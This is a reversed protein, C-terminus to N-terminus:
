RAAAGWAQSQGAASRLQPVGWPNADQLPEPLLAQPVDQYAVPRLFRDIAATGVSTSSDNTTAPWPGGHQMAPTVAVGTPWGDFLVRGAHGTIWGILSRLPASAEGAGAHVTGTLNGEFLDDARAALEDEDDYEVVVSLPGFAEGLLADRQAALDDARVRVITPTAWGQGADDFRLSGEAIPTVGPAALISTRRDRYGAAIGPNLLRHEAVAGARAALTDDLGHGAPLFLFGPKTCLQGASGSVSAVYGDALADAREALAARTVFAPNVSGLEGYFPIPAPRAAAIDALIRGARISGTFSGAAVRADTLLEVGAEQGYILQLTGAPAGAAELAAAVVAGTRESLKPHGSHAKVIVPNGAALAAATDGGAVSFAFPFNSAAFNLVPGVPIRYRRIDPRVGLAFHPDAEDIRVDLYAGDVITDAFLRLQVATRTLEGSLRAEALGTEGIAIAVLEARNEELADAAAVLARARDQPPQAAWRPAADAARGAIADLEASSTSAPVTTTTAPTM